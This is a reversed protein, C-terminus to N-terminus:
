QWLSPVTIGLPNYYLCFSAAAGYAISLTGLFGFDRSIAELKHNRRSVSEARKGEAGENMLPPIRNMSEKQKTRESPSEGPVSEESGIEELVMEKRAAEGRVTEEPMAEKQMAEEKGVAEYVTEKQMAEEKGVAEDRGDAGLGGTLRRDDYM